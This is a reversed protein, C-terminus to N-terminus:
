IEGACWRLANELLQQFQADLWVPLLHGPTLVCVRGKGQRRVYGAPCIQAPANHYPDEQYRAEEGQPPSYSALLIDIDDSLIELKYHEDTQTFGSVGQTLPHPKLPQVTVPCNNPHFAFRSGALHALAFNQEGTVTGNHVILLGGGNETYRLLGQEQAQTMWGEGKCLLVVPTEKLAEPDFLAGDTLVDFSFGRKELPKVGNVPVDAPHWHDSCILLVKM